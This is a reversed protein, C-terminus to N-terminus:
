PHGAPELLAAAARAIMLEEDTPIVRVTVRSDPTSIISASTSNMAADIEVGLFTLGDCIRARIPEAHEGIGGSFVLTSVGGVAAALAGIAKKVSYCYMELALRCNPDASERALLERVDGSVGSIGLLGSRHSLMDELADPNLQTERALYTLAGPDLDGSRTSMVVGGIPTFGMTTDASRGDRVAALSSGNGLHALIVRDIANGGAIRTLEQMLYAFSLGHFGYRRLGAPIQDAGAAQPIALTRSVPPLDAHFATDFCVFQPLDPRWQQVTNIVAIEDPLHNPAFPILNTLAALLDPTVREPERFAPGGHVIRHGVIAVGGDTVQSAIWDALQPMVARADGDLRSRVIEVPDGALSFIACKVSSSGVNIALAARRPV